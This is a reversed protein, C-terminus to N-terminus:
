KNKSLQKTDSDCTAWFEKVANEYNSPEMYYSMAHGAGPVILLHKPATCNKYNEYTMEVPVFDDDTGHIFLVPIQNKSLADKVSYEKTGM